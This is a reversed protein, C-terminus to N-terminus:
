CGDLGLDNLISVQMYKPSGRWPIRRYHYALPFPGLWHSAQAALSNTIGITSKQQYLARWFQAPLNTGYPYADPTHVPVM